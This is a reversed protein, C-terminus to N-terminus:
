PSVRFDPGGRDKDRCVFVYSGSKIVGGYWDGDWNFKRAFAYACAKHNEEPNLAYNWDRIIRGAAASASIRAGKVSAPGHYKTEIAQRM